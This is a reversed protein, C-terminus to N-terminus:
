VQVVEQMDCPLDFVVGRCDKCMRMGKVAEKVEPPFCNELVKWFYAVGRIDKDGYMHYTVYGQTPIHNVKNVTTGTARLESIRPFFMIILELLKIVYDLQALCPQFKVLVTKRRCVLNAFRISNVQHSSLLSRSTIEKAGSMHALAAAVVDVAGREAILEGAAERFLELM